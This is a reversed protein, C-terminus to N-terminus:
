LFWLGPEQELESCDAVQVEEPRAGPMQHSNTLIEKAAVWSDVATEVSHYSYEVGLSEVLLLVLSRGGFCQLQDCCLPIQGLEAM